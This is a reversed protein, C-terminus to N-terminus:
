KPEDREFDYKESAFAASVIGRRLDRRIADPDRQGPPGYGGGGPTRISFRDGPELKHSSKSPIQEKQGDRIIVDNGTAGPEGGELGYPPNKRRDAIISFEASHELIEIDRRLGLGGRWRGAGCSDTRLEYRTCRLPYDTELIEVPTNKANSMHVRVADMGDLGERAGFGGASTEYYTYQEGTEPNVGGVTINSMTGQCGAVVQKPRQRAVAGLVVDVIRQSLEGNGGAVAAPATANVLSEEPASITIPRYCGQNPPIDPEVVAQIAFYTAAATVAFPANVPGKTQEVTGSFDVEVEDGDITVEVAITLRENGWGDDDFVDEFSSTGDPLSEIETRMRQESYNKIEEFATTLTDRGHEEILEEIRGIGTWNAAQQARLDGRRQEATRVNTLIMEFVDDSREGEEYLKVPPIRLGEQYIESSSPSISGPQSGGIDSHHARNVVLAIVGGDAFVPSVLTLDPLHGGGRFPDNLVISDGPSLERIPYRELAAEISFQMAGLHVPINEAQSLMEGSRDFVACSCDERDKITPSYSSRILNSSMEESIAICENRIVELTIPDISM